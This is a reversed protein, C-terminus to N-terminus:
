RQETRDQAFRRQISEPLDAAAMWAKAGEADNSLWRGLIRHYNREAERQDDMRGIWNAALEPEKSMASWIFRGIAPDLDVGQSDLSEMWQSAQLPDDSALERIVGEVAEAQLESQLTETFAIAADLDQEAWTETIDDIARIKSEEDPASLVLEAAEQPKDESLRRAISTIAGSRLADDTLGNSWTIAHDIGEALLLPLIAELADGRERSRPLTQMLSTARNLDEAVLGRIVGVLLPNASDGKHTVEAFTIAAEPDYAAWSALITQRAFNTGTNELAYDLAGRPDVQGWAHLLIGYETFREDTIGLGRFEAVVGEFADPSLSDVLALFGQARSIPDTMHALNAVAELASRQGVVRVGPNSSGARRDRDAGSGAGSGTGRASKSSVLQSHSRDPTTKAPSEPDSGLLYAVGLSLGWASGIVLYRYNM